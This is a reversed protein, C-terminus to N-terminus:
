DSHPRDRSQAEARLRELERTLVHVRYLILWLTLSLFSIWFNREYRWKQCKIHEDRLLVGSDMKEQVKMVSLSESIFLLSSLLTSIQYLNFGQILPAFLITNLVFNTAKRVPIGIFDPLPLCLLLLSVLPVPFLFNVLYSWVGM